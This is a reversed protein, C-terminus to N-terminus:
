PTKTPSNTTTTADMNNLFAGAIALAAKSVANVQNRIEEQSIKNYGSPVEFQSDDVNMNLDKMEVVAKLGQVGQVNGTAQSTLETRVPLGTEKDVYTFSEANVQGAPTQTQATGAARYKIVTQNNLQEEGVREFNKQNKLYDILEGPMMVRPPQFGLSNENIEAYQKRNPLILYRMNGSNLYVVQENNPLNFSIRTKAGSKAFNASLPPTKATNDSGTTEASLQIKASYKEPEKVDITQGSTTATNTNVAKTNILNVNSNNTNTTNTNQCGILMVSFTGIMALRLFIKNM